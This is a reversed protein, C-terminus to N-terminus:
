MILNDRPARACILDLLEEINKIKEIEADTIEIEFEQETEIVLEVTDLSDFDLDEVFRDSDLIEDSNKNSSVLRVLRKRVKSRIQAQDAVQRAKDVSM